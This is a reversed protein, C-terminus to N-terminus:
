YTFFSFILLLQLFGDICKLHSIMLAPSSASSGECRVQVLRVELEQDALCLEAGGLHQLVVLSEAHRGVATLGDVPVGETLDHPFAVRSSELDTSLLQTLANDM